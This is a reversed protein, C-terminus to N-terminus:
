AHPAHARSEMAIRRSSIRRFLYAMVSFFTLIILARVIFFPLNLYARKSDLLHDTGAPIV